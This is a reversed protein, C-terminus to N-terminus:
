EANQSMGVTELEPKPQSRGAMDAGSNPSLKSISYASSM